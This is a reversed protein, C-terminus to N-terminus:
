DQSVDHGPAKCTVCHCEVNDEGFYHDSYTVTIEEDMEIDRVAVVKVLKKGASCIEANAKCDHNVFRAPGLLLMARGTRSSLIISFDGKVRKLAKEEEKTLPV